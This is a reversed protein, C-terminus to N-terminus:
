GWRGCGRGAQRPQRRQRDRGPGIRLSERQGDLGHRKQRYVPNGQTDRFDGPADGRPAFDFRRGDAFSISIHGEHTAITCATLAEPQVRRSHSLGCASSVTSATASHTSALQAIATEPNAAKASAALLLTSVAIGLLAYLARQGFGPRM